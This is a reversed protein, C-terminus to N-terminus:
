CVLGSFFKGCTECQHTKQGTHKIMHLEYHQKRRFKRSCIDCSYPLNDSHSPMHMRLGQRQVFGKGCIQCIYSKVGTHILLHQKYNSTDTFLKNCIECKAKVIREHVSQIHRQLFSKNSFVKGCSNCTANAQSKKTVLNHDSFMHDSVAGKEIVKSCIPCEMYPTSGKILTEVPMRIGRIRNAEELIADIDNDDISIDAPVEFNESENEEKPLSNFGSDDAASNSKKSSKKAYKKRCGELIENVDNLDETLTIEVSIEQSTEPRSFM